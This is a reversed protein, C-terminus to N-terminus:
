KIVENDILSKYLKNLSNSDVFYFDTGNDIASNKDSQGDGVVLYEKPSNEKNTLILNKLYETKNAPYGSIGLFYNDIKKYSVIDKLIELPTNSSLYIEVGLNNLFDLIDIANELFNTNKIDELVITSYREVVFEYDVEAELCDIIKAITDYRNLEPYKDLVKSIVEDEDTFPAFAKYYANVKIDKSNVLTGDFDFVVIKYLM